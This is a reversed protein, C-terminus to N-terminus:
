ESSWTREEKKDTHEPCKPVGKRHKGRKKVSTEYEAFESHLILQYSGDKSLKGEKLAVLFPAGPFSSERGDEKVLAIRPLLRGRLFGSGGISHYPILFFGEEEDEPFLMCFVDKEGISVPKKTAPEYLRNGTDLLAKVTIRREGKELVVSVLTERNRKAAGFFFLLKKGLFFSAAALLLLVPLGGGGASKGRLLERMVYGARTHFYLQDLLGGAFISVASLSLIEQFLAKRGREGFAIRCMAPGLLAYTLLLEAWRPLVPVIALLCSVLGGVSAGLLLRGTRQKYRLWAGTLALVGMNMWVNVAFLVDIYVNM